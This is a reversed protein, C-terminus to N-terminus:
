DIEEMASHCLYSDYQQELWLRVTLQSYEEALNKLWQAGNTACAPDFNNNSILWMLVTLQGNTVAAELYMDIHDSINYIKPFTSVIWRVIHLHGNFLANYVTPHFEIIDGVEDPNFMSVLYKLVDLQGSSSAEDIMDIIDVYDYQCMNYYYFYDFLEDDMFKLVDVHGNVVAENYADPIYECVQLFQDKELEFESFVWQLCQVHNNGAAWVIDIGIPPGIFLKPYCFEDCIWHLVDLNGCNFANVFARHAYEDIHPSDKCTHQNIWRLVNINGVCAATVVLPLFYSEEQRYPYLHELIHVHGCEVATECAIDFIFNFDVFFKKELWQLIHLHGKGIAEVYVNWGYDFLLNSYLWSLTSLNGSAIATSIINDDYVFPFHLLMWEVAALNGDRVYQVYDTYTLRKLLFPTLYYQLDSSASAFTFIDTNPLWKLVEQCAVLSCSLM